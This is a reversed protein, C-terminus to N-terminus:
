ELIAFYEEGLGPLLLGAGLSESSEEASSHGVATRAALLSLVLDFDAFLDLYYNQM